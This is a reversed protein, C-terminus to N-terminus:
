NAQKVQSEREKEGEREKKEDKNHLLKKAKKGSFSTPASYKCLIIKAIFVPLVGQSYQLVAM